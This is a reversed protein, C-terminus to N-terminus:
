GRDEGGPIRPIKDGANWNVECSHTRDSMIENLRGDTHSRSNDLDSRVYSSMSCVHSVNAHRQATQHVVCLRHFDGSISVVVTTIDNKKNLTFKM